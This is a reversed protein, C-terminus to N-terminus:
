DKWIRNVFLFVVFGIPIIALAAILVLVTGCGHAVKTITSARGEKEGCLTKGKYFAGRSSKSSDTM